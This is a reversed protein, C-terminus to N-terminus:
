DTESFVEGNNMDEEGMLLFNIAEDQDNQSDQLSAIYERQKAIINSQEKIIQNLSEIQQKVFPKSLIIDCISDIGLLISIINIYDHLTQICEGNEFIKIESGNNIEDRINNIDKINPIIFQITDIGDSSKGPFYELCDYIINNFKVQM